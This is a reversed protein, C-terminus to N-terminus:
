VPLILLNCCAPALWKDGRKEGERRLNCGNAEEIHKHLIRNFMAQRRETVIPKSADVVGQPAVSLFPISMGRTFASSLRRFCKAFEDCVLYPLQRSPARISHGPIFGYSAVLMFSPVSFSRHVRRPNRPALEAAM